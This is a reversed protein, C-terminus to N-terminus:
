AESWVGHRIYGHWGCTCLISNSNDPKPEVTIMGDEHEDVEHVRRSPNYSLHFHHGCPPKVIWADFHREGHEVGTKMFVGAEADFFADYTEVRQGQM